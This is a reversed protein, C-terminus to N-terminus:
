SDRKQAAGQFADVSRGRGEDLFRGMFGRLLNIKKAIRKEMVFAQGAQM